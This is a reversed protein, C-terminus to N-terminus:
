VQVMPKMLLTVTSLLEVIFDPVQLAGSNNLLTQRQEENM